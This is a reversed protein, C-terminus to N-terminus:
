SSKGSRRSSMRTRPLPAPDDFYVYATAPPPASDEAWGVLLLTEIPGSTFAALNGSVHRWSLRFGLAEQYYAISREMDTVPLEPMLNLWGSLQIEEKTSM